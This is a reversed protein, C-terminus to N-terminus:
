LQRWNARKQYFPNLIGFIAVLSVAIGLLAIVARGANSSTIFLGSLALAFGALNLLIGFIRM